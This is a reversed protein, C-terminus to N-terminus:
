SAGLKLVLTNGMEPIGFQNMLIDWPLKMYSAKFILYHILGLVLGFSIEM